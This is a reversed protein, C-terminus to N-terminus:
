DGFDLRPLDPWTLWNNTTLPYSPGHHSCLWEDRPFLLSYGLIEPPHQLVFVTKPFPSCHFYFFHKQPVFANTEPPHPFLNGMRSSSEPKEVVTLCSIWWSLWQKKIGELKKALKSQCYSILPGINKKKEMLNTMACNHEKKRRKKRCKCQLGTFGRWCFIKLVAKALIM